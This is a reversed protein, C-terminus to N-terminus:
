YFSSLNDKKLESPPLPPWTTAIISELQLTPNSAGTRSLEVIFPLGPGEMAERFSKPDTQLYNQFIEALEERAASTVQYATESQPAMVLCRAPSLPSTEGPAAKLFVRFAARMPGEKGSAFAQLRNHYFDAFASWDVLWRNRNRILVVSFPRVNNSTQIWFVKLDPQSQELTISETEIAGDGNRAACAEMEPLIQDPYLVYANRVAWTDAALFAELSARAELAGEDTSDEANGSPLPSISVETKPATEETESDQPPTPDPSVQQSKQVIEEWSLAGAKGLYFGLGFFAVSCLFCLMLAQLFSIGHGRDTKKREIVPEDAKPENDPEVAEPTSTSAAEPQQEWDVPPEELVIPQQAIPEEQPPQAAIAESESPPNLPQPQPPPSYGPGHIITQCNPCPGSLNAAEPPVVLLHNCTPCHFQIYDM